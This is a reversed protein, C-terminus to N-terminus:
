LWSRLHLWWRDTCVGPLCDAAKENLTKPQIQELELTFLFRWVLFSVNYNSRSSLSEQHSCARMYLQGKVKESTDNDLLCFEVM